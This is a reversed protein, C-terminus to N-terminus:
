DNNNEELKSIEKQLNQYKKVLQKHELWDKWMEIISELVQTFLYLLMGFCFSFILILGVKQYDSIFLLVLGVAGACGSLRLYTSLILEWLEM